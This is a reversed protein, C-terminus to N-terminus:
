NQNFRCLIARPTTPDEQHLIYDWRRYEKLKDGFPVKVSTPYNTDYVVNLESANEVGFIADDYLHDPDVIESGTTLDLVTPIKPSYKKNNIVRSIWVQTKGANVLKKASAVIKAIDEESVTALYGGFRQCVAQADEYKFTSPIFKYKGAIKRSPEIEEVQVSAIGEKKHRNAVIGIKHSGSNLITYSKSSTKFVPSKDVSVTLGGKINNDNVTLKVPKQSDVKLTNKVSAINDKVKKGESDAKSKQRLVAVNHPKSKFSSKLWMSGHLDKFKKIPKKSTRLESDNDSDSSSSVTIVSDEAIHGTSESGSNSSSDYDSESSSSSSFSFADKTNRFLHNKMQAAPLSTESAPASNNDIVTEAANVIAPSFCQLM